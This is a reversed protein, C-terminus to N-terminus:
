RPGGIPLPTVGEERARIVDLMSHFRSASRLNDRGGDIADAFGSYETLWVSELPVLHGLDVYRKVERYAQKRPWWPVTQAGAVETRDRQETSADQPLSDSVKFFEERADPSRWYGPFAHDELLFIVPYIDVHELCAALLLALDICTGCRAGVIDTPTRLRQSDATISYAPPPNVYGLALEHVLMSWIAQVQRDIETASEPDKPDLSQYGDFGASPDDRVVRVYRQGKEILEPVAPDRPLVFSPLWQGDSDNDRWQDVPLLRVRYSDRHLTRGWTVEVELTTAIAEHVARLLDAILPVHIADRLDLSPTALNLRRRFSTQEAGASLTVAVDIDALTALEDGGLAASENVLTFEKFLPRRNHLQSYNLETLPDVKVRLAKSRDAAPVDEPLLTRGPALSVRAEVKRDAGVLPSASWLVLGTGKLSQGQARLQEWAGRFSSHLDWQQKRWVRYFTAYFLELMRDAIVDQVGIAARAGAAVLMAAVRAGSNQLSLAIFTPRHDNTTLAAALAEAAVAIPTGDDGVMLYGDPLESADTPTLTTARTRADVRLVPVRELELERQGQHSDFGAIHIIDPRFSAVKAVLQAYTPGILPEFAIKEAKLNSDVLLRETDFSYNDRLAGPASEVYLVRVPPTPAVPAARQSLHRTVTLPAGNRRERTAAALVFEWPFIRQEWGDAERAYPIAVEVVGTSAIADLAAAHLGWGDLLTQARAELSASRAAASRWRSRNRVVYTWEMAARQLDPGVRAVFEGRPTRLTLDTVFGAVAPVSKKARAPRAAPAAKPKATTARPTAKPRKSASTGTRRRRTRAKPM